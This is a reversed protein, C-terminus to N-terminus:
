AAWTSCRSRTSSCTSGDQAVITDDDASKDEILLSYKFRAGAPRVFGAARRRRTLGERGGHVEESGRGSSRTALAVEPHNFTSM